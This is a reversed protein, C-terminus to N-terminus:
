GKWEKVKEKTTSYPIFKQSTGTMNETKERPNEVIRSPEGNNIPSEHTM